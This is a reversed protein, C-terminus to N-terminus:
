VGMIWQRVIKMQEDYEFVLLGSGGPYIFSHLAFDDFGVVASTIEISPGNEAYFAAIADPGTTEAGTGDYALTDTVVAGDAYTAALAAEDHANLAVASAEVAEAFQASAVWPADVKTGAVQGDAIGMIWQRVIKMQEDYEFVLLGSGGPYIFSHLAFDDFGVVASTIEISPGNEAYFAAIADPGTTETGAITDTVVAGDAYTAALAAEDHANLAAASAEVGSVVEGSALWPADSTLGDAGGRTTTEEGSRAFVAVAIAVVAALLVLAVVLGRSTKRPGKEDLRIEPLEAQPIRAETKRQSDMEAGGKRPATDPVAAPRRASAAAGGPGRGEQGVDMSRTRLRVAALVVLALVVVSTWIAVTSLVFGGGEAAAGGGEGAGPRTGGGVRLTVVAGVVGVAAIGLGVVAAAIRENRERRERRRLMREMAPEPMSARRQIRELIPRIESM